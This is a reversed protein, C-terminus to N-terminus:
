KESSIRRSRLPRTAIHHALAPHREQFLRAYFPRHINPIRYPELSDTGTYVEWRIREWIVPAGFNTRGAAIMELCFREFFKWVEPNADHFWQSDRNFEHSLLWSDNMADMVEDSLEELAELEEDTLGARWDKRDDDSM